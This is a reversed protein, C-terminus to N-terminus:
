SKLKRRLLERRAAERLPTFDVAGHSGPLICPNSENDSEGLAADASSIFRPQDKAPFDAIAHLDPAPLDKAYGELLWSLVQYARQGKHLRASDGDPPSNYLRRFVQLLGSVINLDGLRILSEAADLVVLDSSDGLDARLVERARLDGNAALAHAAARRATVNQSRLAMIITQDPSTALQLLNRVANARVQPDSHDLASAISDLDPTVAAAISQMGNAISPNAIPAAPAPKAAKIVRKEGPRSEKTERPFPAMEQKGAAVFRVAAAPETEGKAFNPDIMLLAEVLPQVAAHGIRILVASAAERIGPDTSKLAEILPEVVTKGIGVLAGAAAARCRADKSNLVQILPLLTRTDKLGGLAIAAAERVSENPDQLTALLPEVAQPSGIEGLIAAAARRTRDDTSKLSEIFTPVASRAQKSRTWNPDIKTLAELSAERVEPDQLTGILPEIASSGIRVLAAAATDRVRQNSDKLLGILPTVAPKGIRVLGAAAAEKAGFDGLKVAAVLQEVATRDGIKGLVSAVTERVALDKDYLAAGITAAAGPGIRVLTDKILPRLEPSKKLAGVLPQVSPIGIQVLAAEAASRVHSHKDKLADILSEVARADRTDGLKKVAGERARWDDAKLQRLTWWYM